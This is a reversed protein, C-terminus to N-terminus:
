RRIYPGIRQRYFRILMSFVLDYVVFAISGGLYLLPIHQLREPLGGLLLSRFGLILVTFLANCVILKCVWMLVPNKIQELLSKVVAYHGFLVTYLLVASKTPLLLFGLLAAVIYCALGAKRGGASLVASAPLLGAIAAMGLQGSPLFSAVLLLVVSLAALMACFTISFTRDNRM